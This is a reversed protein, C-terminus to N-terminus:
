VKVYWKNRWMFWAVLFMAANFLVAYLLSSNVPSVNLDRLPGYLVPSLKTFGIMKAVLGSFAFIFLANM